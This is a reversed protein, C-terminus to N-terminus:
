IKIKIKAVCYYVIYAMLFTILQGISVVNPYFLDNISHFCLTYDIMSYFLASIYNFNRHFRNYWSSLLGSWLMQLFLMGCIGFDYINSRFATYVNGINVGNSYRFELHIRYPEFDILGLQRINKLLGYFTEKGWLASSDPPNKLFMDFLPISGGVYSAIYTIFDTENNRGVLIRSWYFGMFVICIILIIKLVTRFGLTKKWGNKKKWFINFICFCECILVLINFRGGTLLAQVFYIVIPLFYFFDWKEKGVIINNIFILVFIQASVFSIKAMQGVIGSVSDEMDYSTKIRFSNMLTSFDTMSGAIRTVEKYYLALTIFQFAIVMVFVYRNVKIKKLNNKNSKFCITRKRNLFCIFNVIWFAFLGIAIVGITEIHYTYKWIDKNIYACLISIIYSASVLCSPQFFDYGLTVFSLLFFAIAVALFFGLM